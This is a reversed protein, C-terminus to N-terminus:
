ANLVNRSANFNKTLPTRRGGEEHPPFCCFQSLLYIHLGILVTEYLIINVFKLIKSSNRKGNFRALSCRM